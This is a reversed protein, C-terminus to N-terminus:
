GITQNVALQEGHSSGARMHKQAICNFTRLNMHLREICRSKTMSLPAGGPYWPLIFVQPESFCWHLEYGGYIGLGELIRRQNGFGVLERDVIHAAIRIREYMAM